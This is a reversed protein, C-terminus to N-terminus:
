MKVFAEIYSCFAEDLLIRKGDVEKYLVISSGSFGRNILNEIAVVADHLKTNRCNLGTEAHKVVYATSNIM